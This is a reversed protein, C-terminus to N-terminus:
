LIRSLNLSWIIWKLLTYFFNLTMVFFYAIVDFLSVSDVDSHCGFPHVYLLSLLFTLPLYLCTTLPSHMISSLTYFVWHIPLYPQTLTSVFCDTIPLSHSSTSFIAGVCSMSHSTSSCIIVAILGSSLTGTKIRTWISFTVWRFILVWGIVTILIVVLLM